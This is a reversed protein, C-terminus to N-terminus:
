TLDTLGDRYGQTCPFHTVVATNVSTGAVIVLAVYACAQPTAGSAYLTTGGFDEPMKAVMVFREEPRHSSVKYAPASDQLARYVIQLCRDADVAEQSTKTYPEWNKAAKKSMTEFPKDDLSGKKHRLWREVRTKYYYGCEAKSALAARAANESWHSHDHMATNAQLKSFLTGTGKLASHSSKASSLAVPM